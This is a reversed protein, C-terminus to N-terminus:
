NSNDAQQLALLWTVQPEDVQLNIVQHATVQHHAILWCTQATCGAQKAWRAGIQPHERQVYLAYRWGQQPDASALRNFLTPALAELIVLPGRAWLGLQVDADIAAVKGVDHLLAAVFLDTFLDPQVSAPQNRGAAQLTYLVNLSHRQADIPMQEFLSVAAAPLLQAIIQREAPTIHASLGQMFQCLRYGVRPWRKGSGRQSLPQGDM